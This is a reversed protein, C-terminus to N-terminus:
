AAKKLKKDALTVRKAGVLPRKQSRKHNMLDADIISADKKMAKKAASEANKYLKDETSLNPFSVDHGKGDVDKVEAIKSAKMKSESTNVRNGMVILNDYISVVFDRFRQVANEREQKWKEVDETFMAEPCVHKREWKATKHEVLKEMYQVKNMKPLTYPFNKFELFDNRKERILRGGKGTRKKCKILRKPQPYKKHEWLLGSSAKYEEVPVWDHGTVVIGYKEGYIPHPNTMVFQHGTYPNTILMEKPIETGYRKHNVVESIGKKTNKVTFQKSYAALAAVKRRRVKIRVRSHGM